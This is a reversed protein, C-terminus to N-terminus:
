RPSSSPSGSNQPIEFHARLGERHRQYSKLDVLNGGERRYAATLLRYYGMSMNHYHISDRPPLVHRMGWSMVCNSVGADDLWVERGSQRYSISPPLTTVVDRNAVVRFTWPVLVNYISRFGANGMRPCGFTYCIPSVHVFDTGDESDPSSGQSACFSPALRAVVPSGSRREAEKQNGVREVIDITGVEESGLLPRTRSSDDQSLRPDAMVLEDQGERGPPEESIFAGPARRLLKNPHHDISALDIACLSAVAGGLSHGTLYVRVPVGDQRSARLREHLLSVVEERVSAYMKVFGTHARARSLTDLNFEMDDGEHDAIRFPCCLWSWMQLCCRGITCRPRSVVCDIEEDLSSIQRRIREFFGHRRHSQPLRLVKPLDTFLGARDISPCYKPVKGGRHRVAEELHAGLCLPDEHSLPQLSIRADTRINSISNTGRFAIVISREEVDESNEPRTRPSPDCAKRTAEVLPGDEEVIVWKADTERCEGYRSFRRKHLMSQSAMIIHMYQNENEIDEQVEVWIGNIECPNFSADQVFARLINEDRRDALPRSRLSSRLHSSADGTVIEWRELTHNRRLITGVSDAEGSMPSLFASITEEEESDDEDFGKVSKNYVPAGKPDTRSFKFSGNLAENVCRRIRVVPPSPPGDYAEWAFDALRIALATNFAERTEQEVDIDVFTKERSAPMLLVANLLAAACRVGSIAGGFFALPYGLPLNLLLLTTPRILLYYTLYRLRRHGPACNADQPSQWDQCSLCCFCLQCHRTCRKSVHTAVWLFVAFRPFSCGFFVLKDELRSWPSTDDQNANPGVFTLSWVSLMVVYAIRKHVPTRHAGYRLRDASWLWLLQFMFELTAAIRFWISCHMIQWHHEKPSSTTYDETAYIYSTLGFGAVPILALIGEYSRCARGGWGLLRRLAEVIFCGPVYATCAAFQTWHFIRELYRDAGWQPVKVELLHVVVFFIIVVFLSTYPVAILLFQANGKGLGELLVGSHARMHQARFLTRPTCGHEPIRVDVQAM